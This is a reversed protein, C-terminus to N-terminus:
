ISDWQDDLIGQKYKYTASGAYEANRATVFQVETDKSNKYSVARQRMAAVVKDDYFWPVEGSAKGPEYPNEMKLAKLYKGMDELQGDTTGLSTFTYGWRVEDGPALVFSDVEAQTSLVPIGEMIDLCSQVVSLERERDDLWKVLKDQCFPTKDREEFLSRLASEQERGERIAPCKEAMQRRLEVVYYRCLKYFAHVKNYLEPFKKVAKVSLCDNVRMAITALDELATEAELVLGVSIDKAVPGPHLTFVELPLLWVRLPVCTALENADEGILMNPLDVYTQVAADFTAPNSKLLFDGYFRVSFTKALLKEEETLEVKAEGQADVSPIKKITAEMQGKVTQADSADVKQSDFVFFANAGYEIGTVVHTGLGKELTKSTQIKECADATLSLQEFHTTARYQLTVRCRNLSEKTDNLYDASGGVQILGSMFSLKLSANVNLDFSSDKTSDSASIDFTSSKQPTRVVHNKLTESDLIAMGPILEDKCANYLMGLTFPRGLGGVILQSNRVNEKSQAMRAM